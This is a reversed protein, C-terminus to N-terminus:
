RGTRWNRVRRWHRFAGHSDPPKFPNGRSSIMALSFAMHFPQDTEGREREGEPTRGRLRLVGVAGDLDADHVVHRTGIGVQGAWARHDGGAHRDLVGAGGGLAELDLDDAGVVLVLRVDSRVDHAGPDVGVLDVHDDVHRGGRDRERDVLDHALLVLHKQDRAGGGGIQGARLAGGVGDVPGVVGPREGVAGAGRDHLGAAIGPEEQGGVVGEPESSRSVAATTTLFPPLTSPWTRWGNGAVSKEDNRSCACADFALIMPSALAPASVMLEILCAASNPMTLPPCFSAPSNTNMLSTLASPRGIACPRIKVSDQYQSVFSTFRSNALFNASRFLPM